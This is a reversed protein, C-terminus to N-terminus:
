PQTIDKSVRIPKLNNIFNMQGIDDALVRNIKKIPAFNSRGKALCEKKYAKIAGEDDTRYFGKGKASRILIYDDGNDYSSLEHMISRIKRRDQGWLICLENYSLANDIGVPISNWYFEYDIKM